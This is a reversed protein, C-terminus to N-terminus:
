IISEEEEYIPIFLNLVGLYGVKKDLRDIQYISFINMDKRKITMKGQLEIGELAMKELWNKDMEEETIQRSYYAEFSEEKPNTVYLVMFGLLLIVITKFTHKFLLYLILCLFIILFMLM